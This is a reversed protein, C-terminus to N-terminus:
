AKAGAAAAQMELMRVRWALADRNQPQMAICHDFAQIARETHQLRALAVGLHYHGSPLHHLLGVADLAHEAAEENRQMGLCAESLGDLARHDDADVELAMKFNREADAYRKLLLM